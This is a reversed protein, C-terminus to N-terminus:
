NGGRVARISYGSMENARLCDTYGAKEFAVVEVGAVGGADCATATWYLHSATNQFYDEDITPSEWDANLLTSLESASPLRWDDYGCLGQVNVTYNEPACESTACEWGGFLASGDRPGGDDTKNEWVLGTEDDRVCTWNGASAPLGLGGDDLKTYHSALESEEETTAGGGCGSVALVFLCLFGPTVLSRALHPM